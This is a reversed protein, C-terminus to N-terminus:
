HYPSWRSRCAYSRRCRWIHILSLSIAVKSLCKMCIESLIGVSLEVFKRCPAWIKFKQGYIKRWFPMKDYKFKANQNFIKSLFFNKPCFKRCEWSKPSSCNRGQWSSALSASSAAHTSDPSHSSPSSATHNYITSLPKQQSWVTANSGNGGSARHPTPSRTENRGTQGGPIFSHFPHDCHIFTYAWNQSQKDITPVRYITLTIGRKCSWAFILWSTSGAEDHLRPIVTRNLAYVMRQVTTWRTDTYTWVECKQHTSLLVDHRDIDESHERQVRCGGVSKSPGESSSSEWRM